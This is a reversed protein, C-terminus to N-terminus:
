TNAIIANCTTSGNASLHTSSAIPKNNDGSVNQLNKKLKQHRYLLNGISMSRAPDDLDRPLLITPKYLGQYANWEKCKQSVSAPGIKLRGRQRRPGFVKCSQKPPSGHPQATHAHALHATEIKWTQSVKTPEFKTRGCQRIPIHVRHCRKSPTELPRVVDTHQLYATEGNQVSNVKIAEIEPRGCPCSPRYVWYVQNSTSGHPQVTSACELHTVEGNQAQSISKYTQVQDKWTSPQTRQGWPSSGLGEWTAANKNNLHEINLMGWRRKRRTPGYPHETPKIPPQAAQAHQLYTTEVKPMQSVNIAEIKLTGRQRRPRAPGYPCETPQIPPWFSVPLDYRRSIQSSRTQQSDTALLAAEVRTSDVNGSSTTGNVDGSRGDCNGFGDGVREGEICPAIAEDGGEAQRFAFM